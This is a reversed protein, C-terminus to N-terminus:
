KNYILQLLESNNENYIPYEFLKLADTELTMYTDKYYIYMKNNDKKYGKINDISMAKDEFNKNYEEIKPLIYIKGKNKYLLVKESSNPLSAHIVNKNKIIDNYDIIDENIIEDSIKDPKNGTLTNYPFLTVILFEIAYIDTNIHYRRLLLIPLILLPFYVFKYNDYIVNSLVSIKKETLSSYLNIIFILWLAFGSRMMYKINNFSEELYYPDYWRKMYFILSVIYLAIIVLDKKLGFVRNYNKYTMYCIYSIFLIIVLLNKGYQLLLNITLVSLVLEKKIKSISVIAVITAIINTATILFDENASFGVMVIFAIVFIIIDKLKPLIMDKYNKIKDMM